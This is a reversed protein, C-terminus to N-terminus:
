EEHMMYDDSVEPMDPWLDILGEYAVEDELEQLNEIVARDLRESLAYYVLKEKTAPFPAKELQSILSYTWYM